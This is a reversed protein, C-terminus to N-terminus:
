WRVSRLVAVTAINQSMLTMSGSVRKRVRKTAARRAGRGGLKRRQRISEGRNYNRRWSKPQNIFLHIFNKLLVLKKRLRPKFIKKLKPLTKFITRYSNASRPPKGKFM